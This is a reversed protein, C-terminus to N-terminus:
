NKKEPHDHDSNVQFIIPLSYPVIVNIGKQKGAIFPPLTNIVRKAEEELAPHPARSKVEIVHGEKDIKFTVNIRQRGTLGLAKAMKTDFNEVVHKSINTSMCEKRQKNTEFDECGKFIPVEDVINFPVQSSSDIIKTEKIIEIETVTKPTESYFINQDYLESIILKDYFPDTKLKNLKNEKRVKEESTMTSIDEVFLKLVGDTDKNEWKAKAEATNKYTVYEKYNKFNRSVLRDDQEVDGKSAKGETSGRDIKSQSMDELFIELRYYDVRSLLYTDNIHSALQYLKDFSTRDRQMQTLEERLKQKLEDDSLAQYDQTLTESTEVITDQAYSSTYLLMALIIPFLLAYKTLQIHKSRSKSLMVIRKKILSQKFFPNIFSFKQTEFVQALLKNYYDTKPQQKISKSDAIYEHLTAIRSQYIYVLPNFWFVIKFLEFLLLDFSHHQQVHVLEHQLISGQDNENLSDGLFVINFFSFAKTSNHIHIITVKGHQQKPFKSSLLLLKSMKIIFVLAALCIGSIFIITWFPIPQPALNIGAEMAIQPDITSAINSPAGLIVEPLTIVFDKSVVTKIQDIKIFPIVVSLVATALLYIRNLNFFTEKRLFFDYVMLFVIQFAIVQLVYHLM